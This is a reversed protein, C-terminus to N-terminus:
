AIMEAVIDPVWKLLLSEGPPSQLLPRQTPAPHVAQLDSKLRGRQRALERVRCDKRTAWGGQAARWLAWARLLLLSKWPDAWDDGYHRPTLTRSLLKVGMGVEANRLPARVWIKIDSYGPTKTIYFWCCEWVTWTGAPHRKVRSEGALAAVEAAAGDLAEGEEQEEEAEELDSVAADSNDGKTRAAAVFEDLGSDGDTDVSPASSEDSSIKSDQALKGLVDSDSDESSTNCAVLASSHTRKRARRKSPMPVDVPKAREVTLSVFGPASAASVRCEALTLVEGVPLHELPVIGDALLVAANTDLLHRRGDRFGSLDWCFSRRQFHFLFLLRVQRGPLTLCFWGTRGWAVQAWRALSRLKHKPGGVGLRPVPQPAEPAPLLRRNKTRREQTAGKMKDRFAQDNEEFWGTWDAETVLAGQASAREVAAKARERRRAIEAKMWLENERIFQRLDSGVDRRGDAFDPRAEWALSQLNLAATRRMTAAAQTVQDLLEQRGRLYQRLIQNRGATAVHCLRPAESRKTEAFAREVPLSSAVSAELTLVLAHQVPDSVLWAVREVDSDGARHAMQRLPMGFGTDLSLEELQLFDLCAGIYSDRNFRKTLQWALFPWAKYQRFRLVLEAATAVLSAVCASADLSPDLHLLGLVRGLDGCATRQLDGKSLRVLLPEGKDCLQSCVSTAHHTLQLCLVTRRLYQPTDESRMFSQVKAVRTRSKERMQMGRLKVLIDLGGLFHMLLLSQVHVTFTFMRTLTPQEDVVLLRKRLLQLLGDRIDEMRRDPAAVASAGLELCHAWEDLGCNLYGLLEPPFVGPGYLKELKRWKEAAVGREISPPCASLRGVWDQLNAAFDAAYDTMLFKFLRVIAGCANREAFGSVGGTPVVSKGGLLAAGGSVVSATVLNSQHSACKVVFLLYRLANPFPEQHAWALVVKAAAENTGVGDGVVIHVLWPRQSASRRCFVDAVVEGIPRLVRWLSTAVTRATKDALPDLETLWRVPPQGEFHLMASHQMVKSSRSRSPAGMDAETHSRLRLSAEDHIHVLACCCLPAPALAASSAAAASTGALRAQDVSIGKVVEAFADKIKSITTRSCGAAGVGVLDRWANSFARASTSPWSLAVRALFAPTMKNNDRVRKGQKLRGLEDEAKRRCLRAWKLKSKLSRAKASRLGGPAGRKKKGRPPACPFSEAVAADLAVLAERVSPHEEARPDFDEHFVGLVWRLRPGLGPPM